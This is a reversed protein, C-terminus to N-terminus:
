MIKQGFTHDRVNDIFNFFGILFHVVTSWYCTRLSKDRYWELIIHVANIDPDNFRMKLYQM